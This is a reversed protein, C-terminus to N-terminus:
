RKSWQEKKRNKRLGTRKPLVKRPDTTLMKHMRLIPRFGEDQKLLAKALALRAAEAQGTLGGGSVFIALNGTSVGVQHCANLIVKAYYDQFYQDLSKGNVSVELSKTGPFYKARASSRKRRGVGYFYKESASKSM